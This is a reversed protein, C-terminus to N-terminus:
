VYLRKSRSFVYDVYEQNKYETPRLLKKKPSGQNYASVTDELDGYRDLLYSFYTVGWSFGLEPKLLEWLHGKFGLWRATAGMIQIPGYSFRQLAIETDNSWGNLKAFERTKDLWRYHKEYRIAPNRGSERAILGLMVGYPLESADCYKTFTEIDLGSRKLLDLGKPTIEAM